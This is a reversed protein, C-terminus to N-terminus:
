RDRKHPSSPSKEGPPKNQPKQHRAAAQKEEALVLKEAMQWHREAQGSPCGESEWIRHAIESIRRQRDPPSDPANM